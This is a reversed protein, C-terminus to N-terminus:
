SVGFTKRFMCASFSNRSDQRATRIGLPSASGCVYVRLSESKPFPVAGRKAIAKTGREVLRDQVAPVNLLARGSAVLVLLGLVIIVIKRM